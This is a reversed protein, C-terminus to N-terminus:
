SEALMMKMQEYAASVIGEIESEEGFCCDAYMNALVTDLESYFKVANIQKILNSYEAFNEDSMGWLGFDAIFKSAPQGLRTNVPVGSLSVYLSSNQISESLLVDLLCFAEEPYQTSSGVAAFATVSATVGASNNYLPIMAVAQDASELNVPTENYTLGAGNDYSRQLYLLTNPVGFTCSVHEPTGFSTNTFQSIGGINDGRGQKWLEVAKKTHEFLEEETFSLTDQGYDALEGFVDGFYFCYDQNEAALLVPENSSVAEEWTLPLDQKLDISTKDFMSVQFTYTLPLIMQEGGYKGAEMVAPLLDEWQMFRANQIYENLPLFLGSRMAKQPFPFLAQAKSGSAFEPCVCFFVDPGQGAMCETRIRTLATERATGSAPLYEVEIDMPAGKGKARVLFEEFNPQIGSAFTVRSIDMDVLLRLSPSPEGEASVGEAASPTNTRPGSQLFMVIAIVGVTFVAAAATAALKVSKKMICRWLPEEKYLLDLSKLHRPDIEGLAELLDRQTM